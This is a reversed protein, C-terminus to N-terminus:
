WRRSTERLARRSWRTTLRRPARVAGLLQPNAVGQRRHAPLVELFPVYATLVGDSIATIFGVV